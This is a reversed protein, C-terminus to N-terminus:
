RDLIQLLTECRHRYTHKALILNQANRAIAHAAEPNRAFYVAKEVAEEDKVFGVYHVGDEFLDEYGLGEYTNTMLMSQGNAMTEFVRMNLDKGHDGTYGAGVNFGITGRALERTTLTGFKKRFHFNTSLGAQEFLKKFNRRHPYPAGCMSVDMHNKYRIRQWISEKDMMKPCFVHTDEDAALPLWFANKGMAEVVHKQAVGVYDFNYKECYKQHVELKHCSDISVYATPYKYSELGPFEVPMGSDVVLLLDAKAFERLPQPQKIDVAIDVLDVGLDLLGKAYYLGPNYSLKNRLLIIKKRPKQEKGELPGPVSKNTTFSSSIQTASTSSVMKKLKSKFLFYSVDKSEETEHGLHYQRALYRLSKMKCGVLELRVAVDTDEGGGRSEYEEDFGNVSLLDDKHISFNCGLLNFPHVPRLSHLAPIAEELYKMQGKLTQKISWLSIRDFYGRNVMESTVTQAAQRAIMVRRGGIYRGKERNNWHQEVFDKAQICDADLFLIYDAHAENIARNLLRCKRFGKDEQWLHRISYPADSSYTQLWEGVDKKSGDDCIIVEFNMFSQRELSTLCIKLSNLYNYTGILISIDPKKNDM